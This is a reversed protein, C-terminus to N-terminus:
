RPLNAPRTISLIEACAEPLTDWDDPMNLLAMTATPLLKGDDFEPLGDKSLYELLEELGPNHGVLMVRESKKSCDALVAMLDDLEAKYIRSDYNVHKATLGMAKSLKEATNLARAAPSSLIYDLVLEQQRLWVGMRQAAQKGRKKLPREFDDVDVNWDSKGHRLLLLQRIM